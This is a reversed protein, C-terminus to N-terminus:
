SRAAFGVGDYGLVAFHPYRAICIFDHFSLRGEIGQLQGSAEWAGPWGFGSFTPFSFRGRFLPFRDLTSTITSTGMM